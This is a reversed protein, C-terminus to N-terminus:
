PGFPGPGRRKIAMDPPRDMEVLSRFTARRTSALWSRRGHIANGIATARL